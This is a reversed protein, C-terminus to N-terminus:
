ENEGTLEKILEVEKVDFPKGDEYFIDHHWIEPVPANVPSGWPYVTQTKGFVLGWNIAGVNEQKMLPLVTEFKSGYTRALYETCIIPRNFSKFEAIDKKQDEYKGYNHYTIIDSHQLLWNNQESYEPKDKNWISSTLPQSPNVQRAWKFVLKLLPMTEHPFHSNGPENYLDWVAVRDDDGFTKIIDKTYAELVPYVSEDNVEAYGPCQLWGSNHLGPVPEPQEGLQANGYWCDDFLVFMTKMGHKDALELYEEIRQKFGKADQKWPLYHLYVRMMNFGLEEAWRLEKDMTALDFTEEQWMELQNIATSPYFNCGIPWEMGEFWNNAKEETWRLAAVGEATPVVKQITGDDNYHLEDACISRRYGKYKKDEETGKSLALDANHYFLYWNNRYAVISHHNTGSNVKDLITGKYEYPGLVDDSMAYLIKGNGSYSLYYKGKYKHVWAAEFFHDTGEIIHVKGDYSVMDENLRIANVTNQGVFMYSVGDDDIFIAPDIFDRNNVVGETDKSILPKGIPDKFPGYPKDSVAVGIHFQDTPFYLYYKGNKEVCDPAWAYEEAWKVEDLHLAQGHDTWKKMDITSFVHYDLMDFWEADDPDHSPYVYLTDNFVRASPDATYMHTIFPNQALINTSFVLITVLVFFSRM